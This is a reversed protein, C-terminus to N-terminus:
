FISYASIGECASDKASFIALKAFSSRKGEQLESLRFPGRLWTESRMRRWIRRRGDELYRRHLPVIRSCSALDTQPYFAFGEYKRLFFSLQML